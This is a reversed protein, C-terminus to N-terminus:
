SKSRNKIEILKMSHTNNRSSDSNLFQSYSSEDNAKKVLARFDNALSTDAEQGSNWVKGFILWDAAVNLASCLLRIERTAPEREGKEYRYLTQTSLGKENEAIVEFDYSATLQALEDASLGHERRKKQIREGISLEYDNKDTTELKKENDTM